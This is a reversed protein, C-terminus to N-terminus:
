ISSSRFIRDFFFAMLLVPISGQLVLIPDYSRIGAIIPVGFGGAGVTAGITALSVNIILATRIGAFIVPKALPFDIKMLQQLRTMGLGEAADAIELPIADMGVMTNRVVPLLAYLYLALMCPGNGYGLIPVALAIVAASPITEAISGATLVTSKWEQNRSLRVGSALLLATLVSLATSIVVIFLHQWALMPLPTRMVLGVNPPLWPSLMDIWMQSSFIWGLFLILYLLPVGYRKFMWNRLYGKM